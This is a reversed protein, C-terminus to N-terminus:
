LTKESHPGRRLDKKIQRKELQSGLQYFFDASKRVLKRLSEVEVNLDEFSMNMRANNEGKFRRTSLIMEDELLAHALFNRLRRVPIFEVELSSLNEYVKEQEELVYSCSEMLKLYNRLRKCKFDFSEKEISDFVPRDFLFYELCVNIHKELSSSLVLYNGIQLLVFEERNM